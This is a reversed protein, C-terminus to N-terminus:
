DFVSEYRKKLSVDQTRCFPLKSTQFERRRQQTHVNNDHRRKSDFCPLHHWHRALVKEM